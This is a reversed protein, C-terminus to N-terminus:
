QIKGPKKFIWIKNESFICKGNATEVPWVTCSKPMIPNKRSNGVYPLLLFFGIIGFLQVTQGTYAASPIKCSIKNTTSHKLSGTGDLGM